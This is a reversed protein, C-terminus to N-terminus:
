NESKRVIELIVAIIEESRIRGIAKTSSVQGIKKAACSYPQVYKYISTTCYTINFTLCLIKQQDEQKSGTKIRNELINLPKIETCSIGQM